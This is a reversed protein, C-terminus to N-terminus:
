QDTLQIKEISCWWADHLLLSYSETIAPLILDRRQHIRTQFQLLSAVCFRRKEILRQFDCKDLIVIAWWVRRREELEVWSLPRGPKVDPKWNIGLARGYRACASISLCAATYISDGLEYFAILVNAQLAYLTLTVFTEIDRALRKASSYLATRPNDQAHRPIWTVLKMCIFLLVMDSRNPVLPNMLHDYFRKKVHDVDM